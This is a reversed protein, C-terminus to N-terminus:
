STHKDVHSRIEALLETSIVYIDNNRPVPVGPYPIDICNVRQHWIMIWMAWILPWCHSYHTYHSSHTCYMTISLMHFIIFHFIPRDFVTSLKVVWSSNWSLQFMSLFTLIPFNKYSETTMPFHNDTCVYLLKLNQLISSFFSMFFHKHPIKSFWFFWKWLM